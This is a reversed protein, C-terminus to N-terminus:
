NLVRNEFLQSIHPIWDYCVPYSLNNESERIIFKFDDSTLGIKAIKTLFAEIIQIKDEFGNHEKLKQRLGGSLYRRTAGGEAIEIGGIRDCFVCLFERGMKIEYNIGLRGAYAQEEAHNSYFVANLSAGSFDLNLLLGSGDDFLCLIVAPETNYYDIESVSDGAPTPSSPEEVSLSPLMILASLFFAGAAIVAALLGSILGKIKM